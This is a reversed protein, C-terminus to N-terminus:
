AEPLWELCYVNALLGGFVTQREEDLSREQPFEM